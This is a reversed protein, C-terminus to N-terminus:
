TSVSSFKEQEINTKSFSLSLVFHCGLCCSHSLTHAYTHAHKRTRTHTISPLFNSLQSSIISPLSLSLSHTHTHTLSLVILSDFNYYTHKLSLSLSSLLSLSHVFFGGFSSLFYQTVPIQNRQTVFLHQAPVDLPQHTRTGTKPRLCFVSYTISKAQKSLIM